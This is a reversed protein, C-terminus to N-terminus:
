CCKGIKFAFSFLLSLPANSYALTECLLKITSTITFYAPLNGGSLVSAVFYAPSFEKGKVFQQAARINRQVIHVEM